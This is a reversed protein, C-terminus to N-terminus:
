GGTIGTIHSRLARGMQDDLGFRTLREPQFREPIVPQGQLSQKLTNMQSGMEKQLM